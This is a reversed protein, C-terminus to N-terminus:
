ARRVPTVPFYISFTTGAGTNSTVQIEGGHERVIENAITLGLGTGEGAPKTTFFNEFIHPLVNAPIGSGTDVIEVRIWAGETSSRVIVTGAGSISQVANDILNLFVQNLQSPNCELMPLIGFEEVINVSTPAVSRALYVVSHLGKNLNFSSVKSQNLRTFDRLNEVLERMQEIGSLTDGLMESLVTVDNGANHIAALQARTEAVNITLHDDKTDMVARAFSDAVKLPLAFNKLAEMVMSVNNHSYALPTNLQHAVGAVMQGLSAMKESQALQQHSKERDISQWMIIRDARRVIAHLSAFLLVLMGVVIAFLQNAKRSVEEASESTAQELTAQISTAAKKILTSTNKIQDFFPTVDSYVEFVGVIQENSSALIPLYSSILNRNEVVGEFASFKDRHTLESTAKGGLAAGQWGANNLNDEGIQNHESSYVTIGRLDFVKIKFVTSNKMSDFVKADLAKFEKFAQLKQGVDAFCAKKEPSQKAKGSPDLVDPMARCGAVDISQAKAVYPAFDKKWLSNAFLRTLNVNGSEHIALLDRLAAQEQQQAFDQQVQSFSRNQRSQADQFFDGAESQFHTLVAAVVVFIVLSAATFYRVLQFRM